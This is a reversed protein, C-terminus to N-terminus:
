DDPPLSRLDARGSIGMKRYAASLHSEVTRVSLTLRAALEANSVGNRAQRVLERQRLTLVPAPLQLLPTPPLDQALWATGAQARAEAGFLVHGIQEYSRAVALLRQPDGAVAAELHAVITSLLRSGGGMVPALPHLEEAAIGARLGAHLVLVAPMIAEGTTALFRMVLEAAADAQGAVGHDIIRAVAAPIAHPAGWPVEDVDPRDLGVQEWPVRAEAAARVAVWRVVPLMGFLDVDTAEGEAARLLALADRHRGRAVALEAALWWKATRGPSTDPSWRRVLEDLEALDGLLRAHGRLAVAGTAELPNDAPSWEQRLLDDVAEVRGQLLRGWSM